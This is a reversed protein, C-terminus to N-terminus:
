LWTSELFKRLLLTRFYQMVCKTCHQLNCSGVQLYYTCFKASFGPSDFRGDGSLTVGGSEEQNEKLFLIFNLVHFFELNFIKNMTLSFIFHVMAENLNEAQREMWYNYTVPYVLSSLYRYYTSASLM